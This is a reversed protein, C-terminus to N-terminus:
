VRPRLWRFMKFWIWAIVLLAILQGIFAGIVRGQAEPDPFASGLNGKWALMSFMWLAVLLRGIIGVMGILVLGLLVWAFTRVLRKVMIM